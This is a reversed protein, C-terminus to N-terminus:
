EGSGRSALYEARKAQVREGLGGKRCLFEGGVSEIADIAQWIVREDQLAAPGGTWDAVGNLAGGADQADVYSDFEGLMCHSQQHTLRYKDGFIGLDHVILGPTATPHATVTMTSGAGCDITITSTTEPTATM